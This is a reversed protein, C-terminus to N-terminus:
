HTVMASDIAKLKRWLTTYGIGLRKAAISKNGGCKNLVELIEDKEVNKLRNRIVPPPSEPTKEHNSLMECEMTKLVETILKKDIVGDKCLVVACEIINNLQRINGSFSMSILPDFADKAVTLIERNM